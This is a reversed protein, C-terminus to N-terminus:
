GDEKEEETPQGKANEPKGLVQEPVNGEVEVVEAEEHCTHVTRGLRSDVKEQAACRALPQLFGEPQHELPCQPILSLQPSHSLSGLPSKHIHSDLGLPDCSCSWDMPALSVAQYLNLAPILFGDTLGQLFMKASSGAM